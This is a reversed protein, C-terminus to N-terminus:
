YKVAPLQSKEARKPTWQSKPISQLTEIGKPNTYNEQWRKRQIANLRENEQKMEDTWDSKPTEEFKRQKEYEKHNLDKVALSEKSHVQLEFYRGSADKVSLHVARYIADNNAKGDKDLFKNDVEVVEYGAKELSDIMKKTGEVINDNNTVATYRVADWFNEASDEETWDEGYVKKQDNIKRKAKEEIHSAGKTCNELGDLYFGADQAVNTLEKTIRSGDEQARNFIDQMQPSKKATKDVMAALGPICAVTEGDENKQYVVDEDKLNKVVNEWSGKPIAGKEEDELATKEAVDLAATYKAGEKLKPYSTGAKTHTTDSLRPNKTGTSQESPGSTPKQESGSKAQRQERWEKFSFKKGEEKGESPQKQEEPKKQMPETKAESPRKVEKKEEKEAGGKGENGKSTFKGGKDRPHLKEEWDAADMRKQRAIYDERIRKLIKDTKTNRM